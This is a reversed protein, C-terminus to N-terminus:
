RIRSGGRAGHQSRSLLARSPEQLFPADLIRQHQIRLSAIWTIAVCGGLFALVWLPRAFRDQGPADTLRLVNYYGEGFRAVPELTTELWGRTQPGRVDIEIAPSTEPVRVDVTLRNSPTTAAAGAPASPPSVKVLAAHAAYSLFLLYGFIFVTPAAATLWGLGSTKTPEKTM